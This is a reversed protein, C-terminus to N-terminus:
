IGKSFKLTVLLGKYTKKSVFNVNTTIVDCKRCCPRLCKLTKIKREKKQAAHQFWHCRSHKYSHGLIKSLAQCLVFMTFDYPILLDSVCNMIRKQFVRGFTKGRRLNYSLYFCVITWTRVKVKTKQSAIYIRVPWSCM